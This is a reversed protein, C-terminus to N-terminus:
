QRVQGSVFGGVYTGIQPCHRFTWCMRWHVSVSISRCQFCRRCKEVCETVAGEWTEAAPTRLHHMGHDSAAEASEASECGTMNKETAERAYAQPAAYQQLLAEPVVGGCHGLQATALWTTAASRVVENTMTDPATTAHLPPAYPPMERTPKYFVTRLWGGEGGRRHFGSLTQLDALRFGASTMLSVFGAPTAMTLHFHTLHPHTWPMRMESSAKATWTPVESFVWGGPAMASYLEAAFTCLDAVHELVHSSLFLHIPGFQRASDLSWTERKAQWSRAGASALTRSALEHYSRSPELCLLRADAAFRRLLHGAACGVEVVLANKPLPSAFQKVYEAQQVARVNEPDLSMSNQQQYVNAYLSGIENVTLTPHTFIVGAGPCEYLSRNCLLQHRGAKCDPHPRAVVHTSHLCDAQRLCYPCRACGASAAPAVWANSVTENSLGGSSCSCEYSSRGPPYGCLFSEGGRCRFRGRCGNVWVNGKADCGFTIRRTCKAISHQEVLSVSCAEDRTPRDRRRQSALLAVLFM